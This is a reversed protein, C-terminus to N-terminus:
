SLSEALARAKAAEARHEAARETWRDGGFGDAETAREELEAAMKALEARAMDATLWVADLVPTRDYYLCSSLYGFHSTLYMNADRDYFAAKYFISVRERGYEDVIRSGMAHDMAERRWGAPLTAPRFLRDDPDPEGFTFGLALYPEDGGEDNVVKTPLRDSNVLQRQGSREQADIYESPDGHNSMGVALMLMQEAPDKWDETTNRISTM